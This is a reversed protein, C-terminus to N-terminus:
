SKPISFAIHIIYRIFHPILYSCFFFSGFGLCFSEFHLIVCGPGLRIEFLVQLFSYWGLFIGLFQHNSYLNVFRQDQISVGTPPKSGNSFYWDFQIMELPVPSLRGGLVQIKLKWFGMFEIRSRRAGLFRRAWTHDNPVHLILKFMYVKPHHATLTTFSQFITCSGHDDHDGSGSWSIIFDM